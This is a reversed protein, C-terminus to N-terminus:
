RRVSHKEPKDELILRSGEFHYDGEKRRLLVKKMYRWTYAEGHKATMKLLFEMLLRTDPHLLLADKGNQYYIWASRRTYADKQYNRSACIRDIVMEAVYKKPMKMGVLEGGPGLTYDLWYEFHHKNRGKHHLWGRSYGRAKKEANIPSKDGQWYRVGPIFEVPNYKSLDHLIGQRYLGVRFCAATVLFKHHNITGLHGFFRTKLSKENEASAM